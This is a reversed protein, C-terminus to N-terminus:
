HLELVLGKKLINYVSEVTKKEQSQIDWQMRKVSWKADGVLAHIIGREEEKSIEPHGKM